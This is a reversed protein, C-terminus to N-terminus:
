QILGSVSCTPQDGGIPAEIGFPSIINITPSVGPGVFFLTPQDILNISFSFNATYFSTSTPLFFVKTANSTKGEARSIATPAAASVASNVVIRCNVREVFLVANGSGNVSPLIPVPNFTFMCSTNGVCNPGTATEYYTGAYPVTTQASASSGGAFASVLGAAFGLVLIKM